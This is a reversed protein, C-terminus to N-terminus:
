NVTIYAKIESFKASKIGNVKTIDSISAFPGNETRYSIIKLATSQGVGPLACLESASATNINVKAGTAITDATVTVASQSVGSDILWNKDSAGKEPIKIMMGGTLKCALNIAEPDAKETLGGASDVLDRLICGAQMEYVDPRNVAGVIYVYIVTGPAPTSDISKESGSDGPTPTVSQTESATSSNTGGPLKESSGASNESSSAIPLLEGSDASKVIVFGLAVLFAVVAAAIIYKAFPPLVLERGFFRIVMLGGGAAASGFSPSQPFSLM